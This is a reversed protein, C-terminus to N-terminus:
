REGESSKPIGGLLVSIISDPYSLPSDVIGKETIDRLAIRAIIKDVFIRIAVVVGPRVVSESRGVRRIAYVLLAMVFHTGPHSPDSM